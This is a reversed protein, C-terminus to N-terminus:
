IGGVGTVVMGLGNFLLLSAALRGKRDTANVFAIYVAYLACLGGAIGGTWRYWVAEEIDCGCLTNVIPLTGIMAFHGFWNVMFVLIFAWMGWSFSNRKWAYVMLMIWPIMVFLTQVSELRPFCVLEDEVMVSFHWSSEGISQWLLTGGLGGAWYAAWDKGKASLRDAWAAVVFSAALAVVM